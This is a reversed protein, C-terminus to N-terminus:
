GQGAVEAYRDLIGPWGEPSALSRRLEEAREDFIELGRHELEVRTTSPGESMFRVEVETASAPDYEFDADLEWAIVLRGPPEYAKVRGWDCETGDPAREFCRGGPRGEVVVTEPPEAGIHHETPWWTAFEDTFVEFARAQSAEVTITNRVTLDATQETM